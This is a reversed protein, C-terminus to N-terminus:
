APKQDSLSHIKYLYRDMLIQDPFSLSSRLIFDYEACLALCTEAAVKSFLEAAAGYDRRAGPSTVGIKRFEADDRIGANKLAIYAILKRFCSALAAFIAIPSEKAALLMRCSNLSRTLDGSAIRSFLIFASEQRTHSLWKEADEGSIERNKDMFLVLRTCEQRLATTNNEVLELITSIGDESIKFGEKTFFSKVWDLKRADSLEWFIRKGPIEKELPKSISTEDSIFIIYTSGPLSALCPLLKNLDEKKNMIEANKIYFLRTDAFLSGNLIDSVMVSVPTDGAYYVTEEIVAKPSDKRIKEIVADIAIQKEGLEPGLFLWVNKGADAM